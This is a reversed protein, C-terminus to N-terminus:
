HRGLINYAYQVRQAEHCWRPNCREFLNQFARVAFDVSDTSVISNHARIEGGRLEEILFDMQVNIDLYNARAMLNSRRNGMWQAIGLGGAVDDTKFNHEQQLNGMIGATQNRTYGAAILKNWIITENDQPEPVVIPEPVPPSVPEVETVVIKPTTLPETHPKPEPSPNTHTEVPKQVVSETSKTLSRTDPHTGIFYFVVALLIGIALRGVM